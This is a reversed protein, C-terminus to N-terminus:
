DTHRFRYYEVRGRLERIETAARSLARNILDFDAREKYTDALILNNMALTIEFTVDDDKAVNM